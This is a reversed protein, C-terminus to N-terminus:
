CFASHVSSQVSDQSQLFLVPTFNRNEPAPSATHNTKVNQFVPIFLSLLVTYHVCIVNPILKWVTIFEFVM